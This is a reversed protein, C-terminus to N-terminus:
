VNVSSQHAVVQGWALGPRAAGLVSSEPIPLAPVCVLAATTSDEAEIREAHVVPMVAAAESNHQSRATTMSTEAENEERHLGLAAAAGMAHPDTEARNRTSGLLGVPRRLMGRAPAKMVAVLCTLLGAGNKM